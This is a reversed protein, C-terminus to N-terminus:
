RLEVIIQEAEGNRIRRSYPEGITAGDVEVTEGDGSATWSDSPSHGKGDAFEVTVSAPSVGDGFTNENAPNRYEVTTEGLFTGTLRGDDFLWAPLKPDLTLTLEGDELAFPQEGFLMHHLMSLFEVTSGTLRAVFGRGHLSEDPHDSSVLFSSNELPSRGYQEPDQFPIAAARFDAFFEEYLGARLLAKLYKYEMHLWISENELWGPTFTRARGIDFPQGSLDANVKYMGLKDDYLGSDRVQEYIAAANDAEAGSKLARVPGELFLPLAEPEFSEVEVFPGAHDLDEPVDGVERESYEEVHFRFYTPVEGDNRDKARAIGQEVKAEFAALADDLESLTVDVTEGDFGWHVRDRYQERATAVRDWYAHDREARDTERYWSLAERVAELLDYIEVPLTLSDVDEPADDIADRVMALLRSLEYTEPMSSGFISPLGAMADDWGPNGAEMEIGMGQPDMTAFKVLGLTTLKGLLTTEFVEGHGDATRVAFPRADRSEILERKEDDFELPNAQRVAGDIEVYKLTRPRVKVHTDQFTYEERGFFLDAKRDPYIDLYKEISDLNYTWHDVWYGDGFATEFHRTAQELAVSLFEDPEVTLGGDEVIAATLLGGPTFADELTEKVADPGEVLELIAERDDPEVFFRNGELVLPNYGDAQLLNMYSVVNFDEVGPELWVDERRNQLVDRFNGNGQSYFEPAVYFDNYDRELDGHKRSYVHQVIDDDEGLLVPWGGRLVNDFFTQRTYADFTDDATEVAVHDTLDRALENARERQEAVFDADLRAAHDLAGDHDAAHGVLASLSLTEGPELTGETGFFGCPTRGVTIQDAEILADLGGELFPDPRDLATDQGFVVDPDVFPDLREGDSVATYFHGGEVAELTADEGMTPNAQYFPVGSDLHKVAMWAEATRSVNKLEADEVGAPVVVPLGDLVSLDIPEAGVNEITVERILGAFPEETVTFYRVTTELGYADHTEVIELENAGVHMQRDGDSDPAFPEYFTGDVDLFTRFGVEHTQRYAKNAPLFETIAGDKDGVGMSTIAQGRNVYLVWLPIGMEGAIGPLFSAFPDRDAYDTIVFRDRDDFSHRDM